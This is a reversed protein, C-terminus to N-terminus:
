GVDEGFLIATPDTDMATRMAANIATFLNLKSTPGLHPYNPEPASPHYASTYLHTLDESSSSSSSSDHHHHSSELAVASFSRIPNQIPNTRTVHRSPASASGSPITSCSKKAHRGNNGLISLIPRSRSMMM